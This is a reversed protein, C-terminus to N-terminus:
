YNGPTKLNGAGLPNTGRYLEDYDSYTDGDSDKKLIDTGIYKELNDPLKDGDSDKKSQVFAEESVRKSTATNSGDIATTVISNGGGEYSYTYMGRPNIGKVYTPFSINYVLSFDSGKNVYIFPQKTYIDLPVTKLLMATGYQGKTTTLDILNEPYAKKIQKYSELARRITEVASIQKSMQYEEKTQGTRSITADEVSISTEPENISISTNVDHLSLTVTLKTQHDSNKQDKEPVMRLTYQVKIPIGESDAWLTLTTNKKFYDFVSNFEPSKIYDLTSQDFRIPSKDSYKANFETTIDTYFQALNDKNTELQYRYTSIGDVTEKAQTGQSLLAKDKDAITLFLKIQEIAIEKRKTIENQVSNSDSDFYSSGYAALDEPTIKIWKDKLKSIDVFFSPFKHISFFINSDIKKFEADVGINMDNFETEAKIQVQGNVNKEDIKKSAASITGNFKFNAPIYSLYNKTNLINVLAPQSPEDPLYIFTDSSQTFTVTKDKMTIKEASRSNTKQLYDIVDSTEFTVTLTYGSGDSKSVYTYENSKSFNSLAAISSLSQPYKKNKAYETYITDFIKRLDRVRDLDRKYAEVRKEDVPVAITFPQADADLPEAVINLNLVYSATNIKGIGAFISSALRTEDYPANGFPGMGKNFAYVGGAVLIIILIIATFVIGRSRGKPPTPTQTQFTPPAPPTIPPVFPPPTPPVQPATQPPM